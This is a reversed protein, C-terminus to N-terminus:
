EETNLTAYEQLLATKKLEEKAIQSNLNNVINQDPNELANEAILSVQLNFINTKVNKIHQSLIMKKEDNTLDDMQEEM